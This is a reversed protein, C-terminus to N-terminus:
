KRRKETKSETQSKDIKLKNRLDEVSGAFCPYVGSLFMVSVMVSLFVKKM